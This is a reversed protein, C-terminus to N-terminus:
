GATLRMALGLVNDVNGANFIIGYLEGRKARWAQSGVHIPAGQEFGRWGAM